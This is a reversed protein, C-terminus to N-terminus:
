VPAAVGAARRAIEIFRDIDEDRGDFRTVLRIVTESRRGVRVGAALLADIMAPPMSLFLLNAEVPAILSVGPLQAVAQALRSALANSRGALRLYLGDEVYAILQAAAFRMKSWTQGASRLRYSLPEVLKPDFVVIAEASMAGNKTAGFSLIDVGRRWTMEAPTCGLTVLANAFRAGDMHFTIGAERAIEGLEAIEDLRYVTGHESAQTISVADPQPKNRV